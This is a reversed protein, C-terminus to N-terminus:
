LFQRALLRQVEAGESAGRLLWRPRCVDYLATIRSAAWHWATFVQSGPGAAPRNRCLGAALFPRPQHRRGPRESTRRIM